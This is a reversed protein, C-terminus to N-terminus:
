EAARMRRTLPAEAEGSAVLKRLEPASILEADQEETRERYVMWLRIVDLLVVVPV